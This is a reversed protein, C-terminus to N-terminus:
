RLDSCLGTIVASVKTEVGASRGVGGAVLLLVGPEADSRDDGGEMERKGFILRM